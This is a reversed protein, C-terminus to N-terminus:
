DKYYIWPADSNIIMFIERTGGWLREARKGEPSSSCGEQGAGTGRGVGGREWLPPGLSPELFDGWQPLCSLFHQLTKHVRGVNTEELLVEEGMGDWSDLLASGPGLGAESVVQIIQRKGKEEAWGGVCFGPSQSLHYCVSVM